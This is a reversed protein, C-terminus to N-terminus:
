EQLFTIIFNKDNLSKFEYKPDMRLISAIRSRNWRWIDAVESCKTLMHIITDTQGCHKGTNTVSRQIKAPRDDTPILDRIVM